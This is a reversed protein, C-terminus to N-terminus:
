GSIKRNFAEIEKAKRLKSKNSKSNKKNSSDQRPSKNREKGHKSAKKPSVLGKIMQVYDKKQASKARKSSQNRKM